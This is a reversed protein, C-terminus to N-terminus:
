ESAYLELTNLFSKYCKEWSKEGKVYPMLELRVYRSIISPLIRADTPSSLLAVYEDFIMKEQDNELDYMWFSVDYELKKRLSSLRVPQGSWFISNGM